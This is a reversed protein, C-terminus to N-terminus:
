KSGASGPESPFNKAYWDTHMNTPINLVRVNRYGMEKLVRFAPRVNPCRAMPCCGCYLIVESEKPTGAVLKKLAEIGEPKSAAGADIAGTIHRQRYLVPFAVSIVLPHKGSELASALVAPEMVEGPSWPDSQQSLGGTVMLATLAFARAIKMKVLM